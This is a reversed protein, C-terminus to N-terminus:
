SPSGAGDFNLPAFFSGLFHPLCVTHDVHGGCLGDCSLSLCIEGCFLGSMPKKPLHGQKTLTRCLLSVEWFSLCASMTIEMAVVCAMMVSVPLDRLLDPWVHPSCM